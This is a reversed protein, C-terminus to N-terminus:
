KPSRTAVADLDITSLYVRFLRVQIPGVLVHASSANKIALM